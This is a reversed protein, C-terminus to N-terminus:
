LSSSFAPSFLLPLRVIFAKNRAIGAGDSHGFPQPLQALESSLVYPPENQFTTFSNDAHGVEDRPYGIETITSLFRLVHSKATFAGTGVWSFCTHLPSETLHSGDTALISLLPLSRVTSVGSWGM